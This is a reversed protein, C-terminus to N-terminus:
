DGSEEGPNEDVAEGDSEPCTLEDECEKDAVTTTGSILQAVLCFGCSAGRIKYYDVQSGDSENTVKILDGNDDLQRAVAYARGGTITVDGDATKLVLTKTYGTAM